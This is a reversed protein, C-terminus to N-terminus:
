EQEIYGHRLRKIKAEDLYKLCKAKVMNFTGDDFIAIGDRCVEWILPTAESVEDPALCVPEVPKEYDWKELVLRISDERRMSSFDESIILLDVDSWQMDEMRAHSGFLVISNIKLPLRDMLKFIANRLKEGIM